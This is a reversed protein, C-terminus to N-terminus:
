PKLMETPNQLDIIVGMDKLAALWNPDPPGVLFYWRSGTRILRGDAESVERVTRTTVREGDRHEPHGYVEGTLRRGLQEPAKYGDDPDGQVGWNRLLVPEVAFDTGYSVNM